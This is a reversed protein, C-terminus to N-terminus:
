LQRRYCPNEISKIETKFLSCAELVPRRSIVLEARPKTVTNPQPSKHCFEIYAPCSHSKVSPASIIHASICFVILYNACLHQTTAQFVLRLIFGPWKQWSGRGELVRRYFSAGARDELRM